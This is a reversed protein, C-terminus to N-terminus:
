VHLLKCACIYCICTHISAHSLLLQGLVLISLVSTIKNTACTAMHISVTGLRRNELARMKSSFGKFVTLWQNLPKMVMAQMKQNQLVRAKSGSMNEILWCTQRVRQCCALILAAVELKVQQNAIIRLDKVNVDSMSGIGSGVAANTQEQVHEPVVIPIAQHSEAEIDYVHPLPRSLTDETTLLFAAIM